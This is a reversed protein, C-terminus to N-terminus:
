RAEPERVPLVQFPTNAGNVTLTYSGAEFVGDLVLYTRFPRVVAACVTERRQRMTLVVDVFHGQRSQTVAELEACADPLAGQIVAEVAVGDGPLPRGATRIGVSDVVAPFVLYRLSDTAARVEMTERRDDSGVRYGFRDPTATETTRSAGGCASLVFAGAVVVALRVRTM